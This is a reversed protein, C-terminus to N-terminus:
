TDRIAEEQDNYIEFVTLLKTIGLLDKIKMTPRCLVLKVGKKEAMTYCRVISALGTSDVHSVDALDLIIVGAADLSLENRVADILTDAEDDRITGGQIELVLKDTVIQKTIKM